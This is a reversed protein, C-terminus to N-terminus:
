AGFSTDNTFLLYAASGTGPDQAGFTIPLDMAGTRVANAEVTETVMGRKVYLRYLKSGDAWNLVLSRIDINEPSPPTFTFTPSTGTVTGGLAFEINARSWERLSFSLTFTRGTVVQRIPYFSQWANIDTIDKGDTITAGDESLYGLETWGVALATAASTPATATTAAVWTSGNSGVVVNAATNPM